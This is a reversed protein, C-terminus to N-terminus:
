ADGGVTNLCDAVTFFTGSDRIRGGLFLVGSVAPRLKDETDLSKRVAEHIAIFGCLCTKNLDASRHDLSVISKQQSEPRVPSVQLSEPFEGPSFDMGSFSQRFADPTFDVLLEANFDGLGVEEAGDLVVIGFLRDPEM